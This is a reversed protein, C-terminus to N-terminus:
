RRRPKPRTLTWDEVRAPQPAAAVLVHDKPSFTREVKVEVKVELGLAQHIRNIRFKAGDTRKGSKNIFQGVAEKSVGAIKALEVDPMIRRHRLLFRRIDDNNM